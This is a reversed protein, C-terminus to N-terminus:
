LYYDRVRPCRWWELREARRSGRYRASRGDGRLRRDEV